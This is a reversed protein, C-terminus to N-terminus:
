SLEPSFIGLPMRLLTVDIDLFEFFDNKELFMLVPFLFWTQFVIFSKLFSEGVIGDICCNSSVHVSLLSSLAFM